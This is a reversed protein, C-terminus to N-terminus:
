VISEEYEIFSQVIDFSKLQIIEEISDILLYVVRVRDFFLINNMISNQESFDRNNSRADYPIFIAKNVYTKFDILNSSFKDPENQKSTWDKGTACQALFVQMNNQNEDEKFPIWAVLDVGNDGTNHSSLSEEKYKTKYKLDQALLNTKQKLTGTYRDSATGFIHSKAHDPLYSKLVELSLREFDSTLINTNNEIYKLSSSLLLFLYLKHHNNLNNQLSIHNNDTVDFPFFEGFVEKRTKLIDFWEQIRSHWIDTNNSPDDSQQETTADDIKFRDYIDSVSVFDGNNILAIFEIYDCFYHECIYSQTPISDINKIM